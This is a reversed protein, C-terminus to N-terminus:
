ETPPMGDDGVTKGPAGKIQLHVHYSQKLIILDIRFGPLNTFEELLM